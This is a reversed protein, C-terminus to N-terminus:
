RYHVTLIEKPSVLEPIVNALAYDWASCLQADTIDVDYLVGNRFNSEINEVFTQLVLYVGDTSYEKFLAHIYEAKGSVFSQLVESCEASTLTVLPRYIHVSSLDSETYGFNSLTTFALESHTGNYRIERAM